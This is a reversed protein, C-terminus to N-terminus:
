SNWAATCAPRCTMPVAARKAPLQPPRQAKGAQEQLELEAARYIGTVSKRPLATKLPPAPRARDMGPPPEKDEELHEPVVHTIAYSQVKQELERALGPV